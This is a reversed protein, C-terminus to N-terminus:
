SMDSWFPSLAEALLEQHPPASQSKSYLVNLQTLDPNSREESSGHNSPTLVTTHRPVARLRM